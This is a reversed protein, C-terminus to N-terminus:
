SNTSSSTALQETTSWKTFLPKAKFINDAIVLILTVSTTTGNIRIWILWSLDIMCGRLLEIKGRYYIWCFWSLNTAMSFSSSEASGAGSACSAGACAGAPPAGGLAGDFACYM